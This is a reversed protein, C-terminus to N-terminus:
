PNFRNNHYQLYKEENTNKGNGNTRVPKRKNCAKKRRLIRECPKFLKRLTQPEQRCNQPKFCQM